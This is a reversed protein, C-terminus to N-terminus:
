LGEVGPQVVVIVLSRMEAAAVLPAPGPVRDTLEDALSTLLLASCERWPARSLGSAREM